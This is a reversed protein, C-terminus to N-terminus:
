DLVFGQPKCIRIRHRHLHTDIRPTTVPGQLRPVIRSIKGHAATSTAAIISKGGKSAYARGADPRDAAADRDRDGRSRCPWTRERDPRHAQHGQRGRDAPPRPNGATETKPLVVFNPAASSGLLADLDSIGSLTDLRNIRLAHLAGDSPNGALYNLATARAEAKDKPAVADELDLIAVDAGDAAAKAFRDPRTAPPLLWSRARIVAQSIM